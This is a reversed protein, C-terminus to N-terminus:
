AVAIVWRSKWQLFNRYHSSPGRSPYTFLLFWSLFALLLLFLSFMFLLYHTQLIEFSTIFYLQPIYIGCNIEEKLRWTNEQNKLMKSQRSSLELKVARTYIEFIDKFCSYHTIFFYISITFIFLYELIDILRWKTSIIDFHFLQLTEWSVGICQFICINFNM